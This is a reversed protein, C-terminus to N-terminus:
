RLLAGSTKAYLIHIWNKKICIKEKKQAIIVHGYIMIQAEGYESYEPKSKIKAHNHWVM